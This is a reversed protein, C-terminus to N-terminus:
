EYILRWQEVSHNDSTYNCIAQKNKESVEVSINLLEDTTQQPITEIDFLTCGIKKYHNWMSTQKRIYVKKGLMLLFNINGMAQQRNNNFIGVDCDALYQIYKDFDMFRELAMFNSGFFKKGAEKVKEMYNIDGYSLPCCIEVGDLRFSSLMDFVEFHQNEVTASNGITIRSIGIKKHRNIDLRGKIKTPMSAVFCRENGVKCIDKFVNEEGYILFILGAAEECKKIFSSQYLRSRFGIEKKRYCYFDGGWFQFYSKRILWNPAILLATKDFLGSWIIKGAHRCIDLIDRRAVAVTFSRCLVTNSLEYYDNQSLSPTTIFLHCKDGFYEQTFLIYGATFKDGTIFHVVDYKDKIFEEKGHLKLYIKTKFYVKFAEIKELIDIKKM